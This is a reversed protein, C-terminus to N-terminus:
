LIQLALETGIKGEPKLLALARPYSVKTATMEAGGAVGVQIREDWFIPRRFYIDMSFRAPIQLRWLYATLYHVGMGGGILPARFGAREAAAQEYHISNGESSYAKVREPTLAYSDALTLGAVDEIVPPPREGAGGKASAAAEPKAAEPKLSVRNATIVPEGHADLFDVSTHLTRGRPVPNVAVIEGRVTLPEDLLAPRHQIVTQLMNVNGEATIGSKIGAHIAIGIFFAPDVHQGFVDPQIGCVSLKDRQHAATVTIIDETYQFGAYPDIWQTTSDSM